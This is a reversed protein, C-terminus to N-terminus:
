PVFSSLICKQVCWLLFIQITFLMMLFCIKLLNQIYIDSKRIQVLQMVIPLKHPYTYVISFTVGEMHSPEVKRRYKFWDGSNLWAALPYLSNYLSALFHGFIHLLRLQGHLFQTKSIAFLVTLFDSKNPQFFSRFFFYLLSHTNINFCFLFCSSITVLQLVHCSSWIDPHHVREISM